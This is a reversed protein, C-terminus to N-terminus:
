AAKFTAAAENFVRAFSAAKRRTTEFTLLREGRLFRKTAASRVKHAHKPARAVTLTAVVRKGDRAEFVVAPAARSLEWEPPLQISFGAAELSHTKWGARAAGAHDEGLLMAPDLAGLYVLGGVLTGVFLATIAAMAAASRM